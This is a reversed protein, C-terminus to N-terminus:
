NSLNTLFKHLKDLLNPFDPNYTLRQIFHHRLNTYTLAGYCLDASIIKLKQQMGEEYYLLDQYDGKEGYHPHDPAIPLCVHSFNLIKKEPFYSPIFEIRQDEKKEFENGYLIFKSNVHDQHAFFHEMAKVSLVEDDATAVLFIPVKILQHSELNTITQALMHVQHASNLTFSLYKAYDPSASRTLWKIGGITHHLLNDLNSLIKIPTQLKLAPAFLIIGKLNRIKSTFVQQLLLAGGTSFGCLFLNQTDHAFSEIGFQTAKIWEKYSVDLLDGPNTGHGPLLIARVLFQQSRFYEAVSWLVSPSDFLGHILLVGNKFKKTHSNQAAPNDPRWEFPSNADIIIERNEETFDLRTSEIIARMENIYAGFSLNQSTFESNLGSKYFAGKNMKIKNAM